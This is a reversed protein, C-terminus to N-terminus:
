RAADMPKISDVVSKLATRLKEAVQAEEEISRPFRKPDEPSFKERLKKISKEGKERIEQVAPKLKPDLHNNLILDELISIAIMSSLLSNPGQILRDVVTILFTKLATKEAESFGHAQSAELTKRAVDILKVSTCHNLLPATKEWWDPDTQDPMGKLLLGVAEHTAKSPGPYHRLKQFARLGQKKSAFAEESGNSGDFEELSAFFRDCAKGAKHSAKALSEFQKQFNKGADETWAHNQLLTMAMFASFISKLM